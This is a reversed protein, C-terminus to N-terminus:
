RSTRPLRVALTTGADASSTVSISGHHAAAIEKAIFLGLGLNEKGQESAPGRVLPDFLVPLLERTIPAGQNEVEILVSDSEARLRTKVTYPIGHQVANILLNSLMQKLRGVDWEGNLDGETKLHIASGPYAAQIEEILDLIVLRLDMATPKISMPVGLRGRAFDLLDEVMGTLNQTSNLLRSVAKLQKGDALESRLITANLLIANIPTRLDHGLIGLFRDRYQLESQQYFLVAATIHEDIVEGFRAIEAAGNAFADPDSERWMRLVGSRLALYEGIIQALDFGSEVRVQVHTSTVHEVTSPAESSATKLVQSKSVLPLRTQEALLKVIAPAHDKLFWRPLSRNLEKAFQEWECIIHASNAIIFESLNM